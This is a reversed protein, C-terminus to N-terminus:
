SPGTYARLAPEAAYVEFVARAGAPNVHNDDSYILYGDRLMSCTAGPCLHEWTPVTAAGYEDAIATLIARDEARERASTAAPQECRPVPVVPAIRYGCQFANFAFDPVDDPLLVTKGAQRLTAVAATISARNEADRRLDKARWFFTLVVVEVQPDAAVDAATAALVDPNGLARPGLRSVLGVNTNPMGAVFGPFVSQAHSDGVVVVRLPEGPRTQLCPANTSSHAALDPYPCDGDLDELSPATAVFAPTTHAPHAVLLPSLWGTALLMAATSIGVPALLHGAYRRVMVPWSLIGGHRHREEVTRYSWWAPLTALAAAITTAALSAPWLTAAFVILPWHWLYLSYSRDGIAVPVRHSLARTIPTTISGAAILVATSIVPLLTAKGPFPTTDNILVFSAAIGALGLIQGSGALVRPLRSWYPTTLAVAAGAAFEWARNLPSYYGFLWAPLPLHHGRIMALSALGLGIVALGATLRPRRLRTGIALAAILVTPFVLYFQEEVSLSWLHLLPNSQAVPGFYDAAQTAIVYNAVFLTAGLGTAAAAQSTGDPPLIFLAALSTVATVVAAAPLLRRIRRRYFASLSIGGTRQHERGLMLTIVFGSVVFFIDVGVFGGPLPLGAHCIIVSLVAIARIGQVDRRVAARQDGGM